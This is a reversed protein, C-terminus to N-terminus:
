LLNTPLILGHVFGNEMRRLVHGVLGPGDGFVVCRPGQHPARVVHLPDERGEHGQRHDSEGRVDARADDCRVARCVAPRCRLGLTNNARSVQRGHANHAKRNSQPLPHISHYSDINPYSTNRCVAQSCRLGMINNARCQAKKNTQGRDLNLPITDGTWYERGNYRGRQMISQPQGPFLFNNFLIPTLPPHTTRAKFVHHQLPLAAHMPGVRALAFSVWAANAICASM